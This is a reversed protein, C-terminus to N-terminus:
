MAAGCMSQICSHIYSFMPGMGGRFLKQGMLMTSLLFHRGISEGEAHDTISSVSCDRVHHNPMPTFVEEEVTTTQKRTKGTQVVFYLLNISVIICSQTNLWCNSQSVDGYILGRSNKRREYLVTEKFFDNPPAITNQLISYLKLAKGTKGSQHWYMWPM